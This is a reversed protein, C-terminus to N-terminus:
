FIDFPNYVPEGLWQYGNYWRKVEELNVGELRDRFVTEFEEHTYGCITAYGPHLTIDKLNNLGSFLSVKSFKSVGTIFVFRLYPDADKLVSYLNKLSERIQVAVEPQDIRDLIPKDYEDILVVVKERYGEALAEILEHFRGEISKYQLKIGYRREHDKFIEEIRVQLADLSSIM